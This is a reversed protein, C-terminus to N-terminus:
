AWPYNHGYSAVVQLDGCLVESDDSASNSKEVLLWFRHNGLEEEEGGLGVSLLLPVQLDSIHNQSCKNSSSAGSSESIIKRM